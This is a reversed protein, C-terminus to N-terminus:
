ATEDNPEGKLLSLILDIKTDQSQLHQHIEAVAQNLEEQFQTQSLNESYNALGLLFSVIGLLDLVSLQNLQEGM